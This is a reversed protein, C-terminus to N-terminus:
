KIITYGMMQVFMFSMFMSLPIAIGVFLANRLGLFFLLVGVVLLISLIISNELNDVQNKIGKSQDNTITYKLDTPLNKTKWLDRLTNKVKEAADLLNEGSRKKIDLMVVPKGFQRAFSSPDSERFSTVAVDGLYIPHGQNEKLLIRDFDAALPLEANINIARRVGNEFIEGGSINIHESKVATEIDNFSIERAEAKAPDLEILLEKTQVGRIEVKNIESIIELKDKILRAFDDLQDSTYDGSLNINMIPVESFDVENVLPEMPLNQPFEKKGRAKDLADKVKQLSEQIPDKGTFEVKISSFDQVSSSTVKKVGKITYIEKEFARTIKDEIIDPAYGPYATTVYIEHITIEPFSEKPLNVYASTGLILFLFAILSVTKQNKIAWSSLAFYHTSM